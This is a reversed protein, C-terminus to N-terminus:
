LHNKEVTATYEDGTILEPHVTYQRPRVAKWQPSGLLREQLEVMSAHNSLSVYSAVLAAEEVSLEITIKNGTRKTNM